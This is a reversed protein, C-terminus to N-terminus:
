RRFQTPNEGPATLLRKIKEIENTSVEDIQRVAALDAVTGRGVAWKVGRAPVGARMDGRFLSFDSALSSSLLSELGNHLYNYFQTTRKFNGTFSPLPYFPIDPDCYRQLIHIPLSRQLTGIVKIWCADRQPLTRADCHTDYDKYANLLPTIDFHNGWREETVTECDWNGSADKIPIGAADVKPREYTHMYTLGGGQYRPIIVQEYQRLLETRIADGEEGVPISNLMMELMKFDKAWLAYQFASIDKFTRGGWDTITGKELLLDPYQLLIDAAFIEGPQRDLNVTRSERGLAVAELLKDKTFGFRPHNKLTFNRITDAWTTNIAELEFARKANSAAFLMVRNVFAVRSLPNSNQRSTLAAVDAAAATAAGADMSADPLSTSSPQKPENKSVDQKPGPRSSQNQM